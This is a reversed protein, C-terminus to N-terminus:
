AVDGFYLRQAANLMAASCVLMELRYAEQM